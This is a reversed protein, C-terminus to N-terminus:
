FVQGSDCCSEFKLRSCHDGVISRYYLVMYLTVATPSVRCEPAVRGWSLDSSHKSSSSLAISELFRFKM